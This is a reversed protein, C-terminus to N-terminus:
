PNFDEVARELDDQVVHAYIMTTSIHAHGLIKQLASLSKGARLWETAYTHRLIHVHHKNEDGIEADRCLRQFWKHHTRLPMNFLRGSGRPLTRLWPLFDNRKPLPVTRPRRSKTRRFVVNGRELDIDEWALDLVECRRAGTNLYLGLLLGQGAAEAARWLRGVEEPSFFLPDQQDVKIKQIKVPECYGLKAAWNFTAMLHRIEINRTTPARGDKHRQFKFAEFVELLPTGVPDSKAIADRRSLFDTFAKQVFGERTISNPSFNQSEMFDLRRRFIESVRIQTQRKLGFRQRIQDEDWKRLIEEALKRNATGTSKERARGNEYWRIHWRRTGKRSIRLLLASM